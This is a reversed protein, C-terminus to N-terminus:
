HLFGQLKAEINRPNEGEAIAVIGEIVLERFQVERRVLSKLKNAFPLLFLNALGVGYITAVFATAIGSGLKEPDALNQMVHILGMVAGIIGITPTYGGMGEFMKAAQTDLHERNEMEVELVHRITEPESGDVLLQLGKRVFGDQEKEYVDELGLLGEKRARQSWEVMNQIMPELPKAGPLFVSGTMRLARMFVTMPTQLLIAGLSGGFVIIMAPGNVLSGLHGGEIWNGGIIAGFALVVGIISLIDM